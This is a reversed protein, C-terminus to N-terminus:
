PPRVLVNLLLAYFRPAGGRARVRVCVALTGPVLALVL